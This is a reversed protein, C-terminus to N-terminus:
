KFRTALGSAIDDFEATLANKMGAPLEDFGFYVTLVVESGGNNGAPLVEFGYHWPKDTEYDSGTVTYSLRRLEPLILGITQNRKSGKRTTLVIKNGAAKGEYWFERSRAFEKYNAPDSVYAWVSDPSAAVTVRKELAPPIRQAPAMQAVAFGPVLLIGLCLAIKM